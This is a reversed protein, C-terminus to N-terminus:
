HVPLKKNLEDMSDLYHCIMQELNAYAGTADSTEVDRSLKDLGNGIALMVSDHTERTEKKFPIDGTLNFFFDEIFAVLTYILLRQWTAAQKYQLESLVFHLERLPRSMTVDGQLSNATERLKQVLIAEIEPTM